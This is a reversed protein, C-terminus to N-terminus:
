GIEDIAIQVLFDKWLHHVSPRLSGEHGVGELEMHPCTGKTAEIMGTTWKKWYDESGVTIYLNGNYKALNKYIAEHDGRSPLVYPAVLVVRHFRVRAALIAGWAAGRSFGFLSWTLSADDAQRNEVWEALWEPFPNRWPRGYNTFQPVYVIENGTFAMIPAKEDATSALYLVVQGAECSCPTHVNILDGGSSRM